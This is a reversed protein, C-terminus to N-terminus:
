HEKSKGAILVLALLALGGLIVLELTFYDILQYPSESVPAKTSVNIVTVKV